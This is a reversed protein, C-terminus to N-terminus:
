ALQQSEQNLAENAIEHAFQRLSKAVQLDFDLVIEKAENVDIVNDRNVDYERLIHEVIAKVDVTGDSENFHFVHGLFQGLDEARVSRRDGLLSEVTKEFYQREVGFEGRRLQERAKQVKEEIDSAELNLDIAFRINSEKVHELFNLIHERQSRMVEVFNRQDILGRKSGEEFLSQADKTECGPIMLESCVYAYGEVFEIQDVVGSRDKDVHEFLGKSFEDFHDRVVNLVVDFPSMNNEEQEMPNLEVPAPGSGSGEQRIKKIFSAKNKALSRVSNKKAKSKLNKKSALHLSSVCLLAILFVFVSFKNM